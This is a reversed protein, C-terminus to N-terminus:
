LAAFGGSFHGNRNVEGLGERLLLYNYMNRNKRIAGGGVSIKIIFALTTTVDNYMRAPSVLSALSVLIWDVECFGSTYFLSSSRFSSDSM